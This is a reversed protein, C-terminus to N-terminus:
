GLQQNLETVPVRQIVKNLEFHNKGVQKGDRGQRGTCRWELGQQSCLSILVCGYYESFIIHGKIESGPVTNSAPLLYKGNLDIYHCGYLTFTLSLFSPFWSQDFIGSGASPFGLLPLLADGQAGPPFM